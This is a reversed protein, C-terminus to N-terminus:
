GAKAARDEEQIHADVSAGFVGKVEGATLTGRELLAKALGEIRVWNLPNNVLNQTRIRLYKFAAFREPEADGHLRLLLEHVRHYDSGRSYLGRVSRPNFRRQAETGALLIVILDYYRGLQKGTPTARERTSSPRGWVSVRSFAM